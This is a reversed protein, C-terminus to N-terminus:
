WTKLIDAIHCLDGNRMGLPIFLYDLMKNFRQLFIRKVKVIFIVPDNKM